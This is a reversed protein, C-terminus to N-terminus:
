RPTTWCGRTCGSLAERSTFVLDTSFEAQDVVWYYIFGRFWRQRM